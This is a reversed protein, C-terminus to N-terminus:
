RFNSSFWVRKSGSQRMWWCRTNVFFFTNEHINVSTSKYKFANPIILHCHWLFLKIHLILIHRFFRVFLGVFLCVFLYVCFLLFYSLVYGATEITTVKASAVSFYGFCVHLKFSRKGMSITNEKLRFAWHRSKLFMNSYFVTTFGTNIYLNM